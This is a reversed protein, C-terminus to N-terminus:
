DLKLLLNTNLRDRLPSRRPFHAALFEMQDALVRRGRLFVYEAHTPVFPVALLKLGAGEPTRGAKYNNCRRCAAVVNSWDDIGGKSVPRVHDRSLDSKHRREGCYLCIHGDRAFLAANNLPPVYEKHNKRTTEGNGATAIISNIEISSRNGTLASVGGCIRYLPVGCTYVVQDSHYLRVADRYGIWGIPSGSIDTRLCAQNLDYM